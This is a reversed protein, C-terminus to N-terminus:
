LKKMREEEADEKTREIITFMLSELHKHLDYLHPDKKGPAELLKAVEKFRMEHTYKKKRFIVSVDIFINNM